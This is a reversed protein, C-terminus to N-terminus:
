HAMCPQSVPPVTRPADQPPEIGDVAWARGDAVTAVIRAYSQTFLRRVQMRALSSGTVIALAGAKPMTSMHEGMAKILDQSQIPCDTVDIIMGYGAHIKYHVFKRQLERVYNAAEGLTMLGSLTAHVVNRDTDIVITYMIGREGRKIVM